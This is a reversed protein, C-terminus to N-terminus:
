RPSLTLQGSRMSVVVYVHTGPERAHAFCLMAAHSRLGDVSGGVRGRAQEYNAWDIHYSAVASKNKSVVVGRMSHRSTFTTPKRSEYNAELLEVVEDEFQVWGWDDTHCEWTGSTSNAAAAAAAM